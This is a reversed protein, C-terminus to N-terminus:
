THNMMYQLGAYTYKSKIQFVLKRESNSLTDQLNMESM